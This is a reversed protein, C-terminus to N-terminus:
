NLAAKPEDSEGNRDQRAKVYEKKKTQSQMCYWCRVFALLISPNRLRLRM